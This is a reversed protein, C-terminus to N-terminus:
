EFPAEFTHTYRSHRPKVKHDTLDESRRDATLAALDDSLSLLAHLINAPDRFCSFCDRRFGSGVRFEARTTRTFSNGERNEVGEMMSPSTWTNFLSGDMMKLVLHLGETYMRAACSSSKARLSEWSQGSMTALTHTHTHTHIHTHTHTPM